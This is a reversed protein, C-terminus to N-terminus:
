KMSLALSHVLQECAKLPHPQNWIASNAILANAGTQAILSANDQTIGGDVSLPVGPFLHHARRLKALIPEGLFVQGSRGPEIGMVMLRDLYTIFPAAEDISFTPSIALGAELNLERIDQLTQAVTSGIELHVIARTVSPVLASWAQIHSLPNRTMVHLEINPLSAHSSIAEPKSFCSTGFLSGDLIDIHVTQACQHLGPFLLKSRLEEANEALIAPLIEM